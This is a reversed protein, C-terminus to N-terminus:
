KSWFVEHGFSVTANHADLRQSLRPARDKLAGANGSFYIVTPQGAAADARWVILRAGDDTNLTTEVLGLAGAEAPTAYTEDFPYVAALEHRELYWAVYSTSLVLVLSTLM